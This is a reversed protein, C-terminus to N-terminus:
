FIILDTIDKVPVIGHWSIERNDGIVYVHGKPVLGVDMNTNLFLWQEKPKLQDKKM